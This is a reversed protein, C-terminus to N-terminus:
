SFHIYDTGEELKLSALNKEFEGGTLDGKVCLIPPTRDQTFHVVPIRRRDSWRQDHATSSPRAGQRM